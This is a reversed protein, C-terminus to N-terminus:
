QSVPNEPSPPTSPKKRERYQRMYEKMYRRYEELHSQRYGKVKEPNRTRWVKSRSRQTELWIVSKSEDFKFYNPNRERWAKMSESHRRTQCPPNSCIKQAPSYKNPTFEAQCYVCLRAQM